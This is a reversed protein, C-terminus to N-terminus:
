RLLTRWKKRTKTKWYEKKPLKLKISNKLITKLLTLFFNGQIKQKELLFNGPVKYSYKTDSINLDNELSSTILKKKYSESVVTPQILKDLLIILNKKNKSKLVKKSRVKQKELNVCALWHSEHFYLHKTNKLLSKIKKKMFSSSSIFIIQKDEVHYKFIIQLIKKLRYEIDKIRLNIAAFDVTYIRTKILKLKLLKSQVELIKNNKMSRFKKEKKWRLKKQKM